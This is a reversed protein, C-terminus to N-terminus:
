RLIYKKSQFTVFGPPLREEDIRKKVYEEHNLPPPPLYPLKTPVHRSESMHSIPAGAAPPAANTSTKSPKDSHPDNTNPSRPSRSEEPSSQSHDPHKEGLTADSAEDGLKGLQRRVKRLPDHSSTDPEASVLSTEQSQKVSSKSHTPEARLVAQSQKAYSDKRSKQYPDLMDWWKSQNWSCHTMDDCPVTIFGEPMIGTTTSEYAWICGKTLKEALEMESPRDFIKAGM